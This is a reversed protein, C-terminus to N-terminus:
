LCTAGVPSSPNPPVRRDFGFTSPRLGLSARVASPRPNRVESKSRRGEKPRRGESKPNSTQIGRNTAVCGIIRGRGRPPGPHPPVPSSSSDPTGIPRAVRRPARTSGRSRAIVAGLDRGAPDAELSNFRVGNLRLSRLSRLSLCASSDARQNPVM